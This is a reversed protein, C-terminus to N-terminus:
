IAPNEGLWCNREKNNSKFKIWVQTAARYLLTASPDHASSFCASIVQRDLVLCVPGFGKHLLRCNFVIEKVKRKIIVNKRREIKGQLKGKRDSYSNM